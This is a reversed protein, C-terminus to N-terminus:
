LFLLFYFIALNSNFVSKFKIKMSRIRRLENKPWFSKIEISSCSFLSNNMSFSASASPSTMETRFDSKFRYILIYNEKLGNLPIGM